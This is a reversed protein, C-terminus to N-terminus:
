QLQLNDEIFKVFDFKTLPKSFYYGQIYDCGFEEFTNLMEKTEIGEAVIQMDMRKIMDITKKLITLLAENGETKTFSRDLKVIHLPLSSIRVMNSYGTGFDDLSFNFGRNHLDEINQIMNKQSFTSATETVELNIQSPKVGYKSIVSMMKFPLSGDMCQITSLNVEIYDLKLKKFEDSAIFACVKDLVVLGIEHILGSEEALPIFLDPRIFGYEETSLRILAEASNFRREKVSYIPQYYVEFKNNDIAYRLISDINGMVAYDKSKVFSSALIVDGSYKTNRFDKILFRLEDITKIDEPIKIVCINPLVSVSFRNITCDDRLSEEVHNAFRVAYPIDKGVLIVAFLGNELNYITPNINLPVNISELRKALVKYLENMNSFSIYSNLASHNTINILVLSSPKEVQSAQVIVDYFAESKFLGTSVDIKEEPKEITIMVLLLSLSTTIMECLINPYNYQILVALLQNPAISVLPIFRDWKLVNLYKVAYYICFCTYFLASLYLIFFLPGRTYEDKEGIYFVLHTFPSTITLITILAFPVWILITKIIRNNLRHWTDTVVIMYAGFIPTILNRLILYISHMVYKLGVAGVGRNDLTVAFVDYITAMIAVFLLLSFVGRRRSTKKTRLLLTALLLAYIILAVYDLYIIKKM